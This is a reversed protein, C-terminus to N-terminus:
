LRARRRRRGANHASQNMELARARGSGRLPSCTLLMREVLGGVLGAKLFGGIGRYRDGGALQGASARARRAAAALAGGRAEARAVADRAGRVLGGPRDRGGLRVALAPDASRCAHGARSRRADRRNSWWSPSRPSRPPTRSPTDPEMTLLRDSRVATFFLRRQHCGDQWRRHLSAASKRRSRSASSSSRRKDRKRM